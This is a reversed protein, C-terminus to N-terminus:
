SEDHSHEEIELGDLYPCRNGPAGRASGPTRNERVPSRLSVRGVLNENDNPDMMSSLDSGPLSRTRVPEM